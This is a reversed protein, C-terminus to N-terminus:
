GEGLRLFYSETFVKKKAQMRLPLLSRGSSSGTVRLSFSGEDRKVM